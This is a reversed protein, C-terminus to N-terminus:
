YKIDNDSKNLHPFPTEPVEKNLFGCLKEWGEGNEFCIEKFRDDQNIFFDRASENHLNYFNIHESKYKQPMSYGYIMKRFESPGTKLSHKCLSEYWIDSSKRTTLIFKSNPYKESMEKYVLPWPWDEFNNYDKAKDILEAIDGRYWKKTLGLDFSIHKSFELIELAKGLTTTGTKNLGIGFIKM